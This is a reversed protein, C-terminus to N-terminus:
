VILLLVVVIFLLVSRGLLSEIVGEPELSALSVNAVSDGPVLPHFLPHQDPGLIFVYSLPRREMVSLLSSILKSFPLIGHLFGM